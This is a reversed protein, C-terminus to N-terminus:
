WDQQHRHEPLSRGATARQDATQKPDGGRDRHDHEARRHPHLGEAELGREEGIVIWRHERHEAREYSDPQERLEISLALARARASRPAKSAWYMRESVPMPAVPAKACQNSSHM